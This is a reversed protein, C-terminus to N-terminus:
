CNPLLGALRIAWIEHETLVRCGDFIDQSSRAPGALHDETKGDLAAAM